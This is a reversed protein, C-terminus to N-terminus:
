NQKLINNKYLKKNNNIHCIFFSNKVITYEIVINLTWENHVHVM